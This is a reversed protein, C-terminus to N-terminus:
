LTTDKVAVLHTGIQDKLHKKNLDETDPFFVYNTDEPKLILTEKIFLYIRGNISLTVNPPDYYRPLQETTKALAKYYEKIIRTCTDIVYHLRSSRKNVFNYLDVLEQVHTIRFISSDRKLRKTVIDKVIQFPSNIYLPLEDESLCKVFLEGERGDCERPRYHTLGGDQYCFCIMGFQDYGYFYGDAPCEKFIRSWKEKMIKRYRLLFDWRIQEVQKLVEADFEGNNFKQEIARLM